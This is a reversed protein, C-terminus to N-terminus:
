LPDLPHLPKMQSLIHVLPQNKNHCYFKAVVFNLIWVYVYIYTYIYTYTYIYIYICTHLKSKCQCIVGATDNRICCAYLVKLKQNMQSKVDTNCM